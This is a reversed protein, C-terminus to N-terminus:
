AEKVQQRLDNLIIHQSWSATFGAPGEMFKKMNIGPTSPIDYTIAMGDKSIEYQSYSIFRKKLTWTYGHETWWREAYLEDKSSEWELHGNGRAM